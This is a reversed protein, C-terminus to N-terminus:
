TQDYCGLRGFRENTYTTVIDLHILVDSCTVVINGSYSVLQVLDDVVRQVQVNIEGVGEM